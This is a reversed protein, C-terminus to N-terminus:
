CHNEWVWSFSMELVETLRDGDERSSVLVVKHIKHNIILAKLVPEDKVQVFYLFCPYDAQKSVCVYVYRSLDTFRTSIIM